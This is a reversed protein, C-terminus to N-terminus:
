AKLRVRRGDIEITTKSYTFKKVIRGDRFHIVDVGRRVEPRGEFGGEMSPWDLRWQFLVKQEAEDVLMDEPTFQFGGNNAFWGAWAERLAAKGRAQGGTWNDFVVQDDFLAMVGELDYREWARNWDDMAARIEDRSKM